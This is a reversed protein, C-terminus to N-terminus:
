HTACTICPNYAHIFMGIIRTQDEKDLGKIIPTLLKMDHEMAPLNLVTPTIIDSGIIIGEKDLEYHHFLTGRPSECAATGAGFHRAPKVPDKQDIGDTVFQKLLKISENVFFFTEIAEAIIIDFPSDFNNKINLELFLDLTERDLHKKNQNLRATAGVMMTKGRLTGFKARTYPKLEELLYHKYNIPDFTIGGSTKVKGDYYAYKTSSNLATSIIKRSIKPYDFSQFLQITKKSIELAEESKQLLSKLIEKEPFKKFGGPVNTIPHITRGGIAEIIADAYYKIKTANSFLEPHSKQLEFLSNAGIFDPLVLLYLHLSHSQIMQGCLLIRRLDITQKSPMIGCATEIAKTSAINHATSCAGCIRSTIIPAEYYKKGFLIKEIYRDNELGALKAHFASENKLHTFFTAHDDIKLILEKSM